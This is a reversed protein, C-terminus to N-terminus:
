LWRDMEETKIVQTKVEMPVEEQLEMQIEMRVAVPLATIQTALEITKILLEEETELLVAEILEEGEM